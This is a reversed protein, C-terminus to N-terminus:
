DMVKGAEAAIVDSTRTVIGRMNKRVVPWFWYGTKGVWPNFMRTTRRRVTHATGKPSRRAYVKYKNGRAGYESGALLVDGLAGGGGAHAGGGGATSAFTLTSAARGGIRTSGARSRMAPVLPRAEDDRLHKTVAASVAAPMTALDRVLADVTRYTM